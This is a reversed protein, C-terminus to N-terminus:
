LGDRDLKTPNGARVGPSYGAAGPLQGSYKPVMGKLAVVAEANPDQFCAQHWRKRHRRSLTGHAKAPVDWTRVTGDLKM